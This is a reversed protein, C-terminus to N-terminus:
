LYPSFLWAMADRVRILLNRSDVEQLTIRQSKKIQLHIHDAIIRVEHKDYIEMVLEFNLRLSRPDMNASGAQAYHDDVVFLKSHVFPQPQYYFKVGNKLLEWLMNYTAWQVFPLNNKKPLIVNIDVGRLSATQLAGILERSPLFYPTMILIEMRAASIAGMLVAELKNIGTNPGEPIIRCITDGAKEIPHINRPRLEKRSFRWDDLFIHELQTVIPGNLRFHTDIVRSKNQYNKALHRYGINMGGIFGIRGDAVLIKRHNRLNIHLTPPILKPPIFRSVRIGKRKLLTGAWPFSYLEGIGDIIIRVDVDREVARALADIFLDGQSDTEFIYTSFFIYQSATEIAELMAPYAREGNHMLEIQNGGLLPYEAMSESILAIERSEVPLNDISIEMGTKEIEDNLRKIMNLSRKDMQRARTQVRNIGFLFYLFPGIIPFFICTAIWGLSARPDRKYLLAHGATTIVLLINPIILVWQLLDWSPFHYDSM